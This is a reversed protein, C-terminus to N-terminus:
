ESAQLKEIVHAIAVREKAEGISRKEAQAAPHWKVEWMAPTASAVIQGQGRKSLSKRERGM